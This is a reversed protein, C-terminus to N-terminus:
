DLDRMADELMKTGDSIAAWGMQLFTELKGGLKADHSDMAANLGTSIAAGVLFGAVGFGGGWFRTGTRPASRWVNLFDRHGALGDRLREAFVPYVDARMRVFDNIPPSAQAILAAYSECTLGVEVGAQLQRLADLARGALPDHAIGSEQSIIIAYCATLYQSRWSESEWHTDPNRIIKYCAASDSASIVQSPQLKMDSSETRQKAVLDRGCYRCVIAEAKITEACFPCQKTASPKARPPQQSPVTVPQGCKPCDTVLGAGAEDIVIQQGCKDCNFSIDM